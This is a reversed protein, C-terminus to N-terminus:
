NYDVTISFMGTYAGAVQNAGVALKAGVTVTATGSGNLTGTGSPTSTFTNVTMSAGPGTLSTSSPLTIAFTSNANGAINLSAANGGALASLAVNTGSRAGAASMTVTGATSTPAVNGFVLDATKTVTAPTIITVSSNATASAAQAVPVALVSFGLLTATLSIKTILATNM